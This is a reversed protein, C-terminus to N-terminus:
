FEFGLTRYVKSSPKELVDGKWGPQAQAPTAVDYPVGAEPDTHLFWYTLLGTLVGIAGLLCTSLDLQQM